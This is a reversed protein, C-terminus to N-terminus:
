SSAGLIVIDYTVSTGSSSNAIQLIDGTTAAVAYATADPAFLALVGGPRVIVENDAADVWSAWAASEHGGVLVNNTNAAAAAIVLGKIRAFTITAGFADALSGALDLTDTGSAAITRRDHFIRNAQGAGVGSALEVLKRLTLPVKGSALDLPSTHEATVQVLLKSDLAM